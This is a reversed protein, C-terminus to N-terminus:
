RASQEPAEKVLVMVVDDYMVMAPSKDNDPEVQFSYVNYTGDAKVDHESTDPAIITFLVEGPTVIDLWWHKRGHAPQIPRFVRGDVPAKILVKEYRKWPGDECQLYMYRGERVRLSGKFRPPVITMYEQCHDCDTSITPKVISAAPECAPPVVTESFTERPTLQFSFSSRGFWSSIYIDLPRTIEISKAAQILRNIPLHYFRWLLLMIIPIPLIFAWPLIHLHMIGGFHTPLSRFTSEIRVRDFQALIDVYPDPRYFISILIVQGVTHRAARAM